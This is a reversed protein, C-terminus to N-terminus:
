SLRNALALHAEARPRNSAESARARHRACYAVMLVIPIQYFIYILVNDTVMTIAVVVAIAVGTASSSFILAMFLTAVFSGILGYDYFIKLWDNHPLDGDAVDASLADASGSGSGFLWELTPRKSAAKTIASGMHHRGLMVEEIHPGIKLRQHMYEAISIFNVAMINIIGLACFLAIIRNSRKQFIPLKKLLFLLFLGVLLAALGIRKGGLVTMIIALWFQGFAGTGCFFIAYIPGLLAERSNYADVVGSGTGALLIEFLRIGGHDTICFIAIFYILTAYFLIFIQKKSVNISPAFGIIVINLFLFSQLFFQTREEILMYGLFCASLYILLLVGAAKNIRPTHQFLLPTVLIAPIAYMLYRVLGSPEQFCLGAYSVLYVLCAISVALRSMAEDAATELFLTQSGSNPHARASIQSNGM